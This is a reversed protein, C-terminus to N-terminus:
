LSPSNNSERLLEVVQWFTMEPHASAMGMAEGWLVTANFTMTADYMWDYLDRQLETEFSTPVLIARKSTFSM